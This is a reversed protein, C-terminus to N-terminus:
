INFDAPIFHMIVLTEYSFYIEVDGYILLKKRLSTYGRLFLSKRTTIQLSDSAEKYYYYNCQLLQKEQM